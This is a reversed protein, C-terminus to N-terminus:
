VTASNQRLFQALPKDYELIHELLWKRMYAFLFEDGSKMEELNVRELESLLRAHAQDHGSISPYSFQRMLRHESAFHYETFASLERMLCEAIVHDDAAECSTAGLRKILSAMEAHQDDIERIGVLYAEDLLSTEDLSSEGAVEYRNKGKKKSRYMAMDAAMLLDDRTTGHQPYISIGISAGVQCTATQSLIIEIAVVSLIKQAVHVAGTQDDIESLVIVFEDGGMRAVTDTTRVISLFREAVTKLVIDGAEHGFKDNVVKFGDLDVFLVGLHKQDRKARFLAQAFRDFFLTRNPLSTLRDYYALNHLHMEAERRATIDHAALFILGDHAALSWELFRYDGNKHRFRAVFDSVSQGAQMDAVLSVAAPKDEPHCLDFYRTGELEGSDYGMLKKWAPNVKVCRGSPDAIGMMDPAISFFSELETRLSKLQAGVRIVEHEAKRWWRQTALLWASGVVFAILYFLAYMQVSRRWDAFIAAKGRGIGFVLPHDMHLGEPRITRLMLMSQENASYSIGEFFSGLEGSRLHSSFFTGPVSLDLGAMEDGGPQWIFVKGAGHVLRTWTSPAYRVANILSAFFQVDLSASIVGAFEGDRGTIIRTLTMTWVDTSARFPPSVYLTENEPNKQPVLFYDRQSADQGVLADLNSFVIRGSVDIISISRVSNMASSLTKLRESVIFGTDPRLEWGPTMSRRVGGLTVAIREFQQTLMYDTISSVALLREKERESVHRHERNAIVFLLVGLIVSCVGYILWEIYFNRIRTNM